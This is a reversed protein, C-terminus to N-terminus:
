SLKLQVHICKTEFPEFIWKPYNVNFKINYNCIHEKFVSDSTDILKADSDKILFTASYQIILFLSWCLQKTTSQIFHKLLM